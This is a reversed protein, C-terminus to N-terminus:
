RGITAALKNLRENLTTPHDRAIDILVEDVDQWDADQFEDLFEGRDVKISWTIKSKLNQIKSQKHPLVDGNIASIRDNLAQNLKKEIADTVERRLANIISLPVFLGKPHKFSFSGLTLRTDGLKEFAGRTASEMKATEKAASFPGAIAASVDIQKEDPRRPEIRAVASL